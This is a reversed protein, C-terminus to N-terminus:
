QSIHAKEVQATFMRSTTLHNCFRRDSLYIGKLLKEPRFKGLLM